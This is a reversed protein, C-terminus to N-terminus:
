EYTEMGILLALEAAYDQDLEPGSLWGGIPNAIFIFAYKIGKGALGIRLDDTVTRNKATIFICNGLNVYKTAFQNLIETAADIDNNQLVLLNATYDNHGFTPAFNEAKPM